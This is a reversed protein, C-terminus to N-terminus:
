MYADNRAAAVAARSAFSHAPSCPRVFGSVSRHCLGAVCGYDIKSLERLTQVFKKRREIVLSGSYNRFMQQLWLGATAAVSREALREDM